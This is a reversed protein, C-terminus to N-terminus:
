LRIDGPSELGNTPDYLFLGKQDIGDPGVSYFPPGYKITDKEGASFPDKPMEDLEDLVRGATPSSIDDGELVCIKEATGIMLLRLKSRVIGSRNYANRHGPKAINYLVPVILSSVGRSLIGRGGEIKGGFAASTDRMSRIQGEIMERRKQETVFPLVNTELYDTQLRMSEGMIEKGTMGEIHRTLGYRKAERILGVQDSVMTNEGEEIFLEIQRFLDKQSELFERLLRTDDCADVAKWCADVGMSLGSIGILRSILTSYRRTKSSKIISEATDLAKNWEENQIHDLTKLYLLHNLSQFAVFDPFPFGNIKTPDKGAALASIEYDPRSVLDEFADVLPELEGLNGSLEDWRPDSLEAREKKLKSIEMRLPHAKDKLTEWKEIFKHSADVTDPEFPKAELDSPSFHLPVSRWEQYQKYEAPTMTSLIKKQIYIRIAFGGALVLLLILFFGGILIYHWRKM